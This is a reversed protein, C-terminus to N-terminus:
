QNLVEKLYDNRAVEISSATSVLNFFYIKMVERLLEPNSRLDQSALCNSGSLTALKGLISNLLTDSPNGTPLNDFVGNAEEILREIREQENGDKAVRKAFSPTTMSVECVSVQDESFTAIGAGIGVLGLLLILAPTQALAHILATCCTTLSSSTYM